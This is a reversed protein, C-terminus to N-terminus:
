RTIRGGGVVRQKKADLDAILVVDADRYALGWKTELRGELRGQESHEVKMPVAQLNSFLHVADGEEVEESFPAREFVLQPQRSVEEKESILFGREIINPQIGKLALGVRSGAPASKVDEDHIQISRVEAEKEVPYVTLRDRMSVTGAKVVGLVVCGVGKVNFAQDVVVRTPEDVRRENDADLSSCMSDIHEWLAEMGEHTALCIRVEPAGDLATKRLLKRTTEATHELMAYNMKEAATYAVLGHRKFVSMAILQEGAVADLGDLPVCFVVGDALGLTTMLAKLSEPYGAPEVLTLRRAGREVEYMAVDTLAYRKGMCRVLADREAKSGLVALTTM